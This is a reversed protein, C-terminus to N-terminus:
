MNAKISRNEDTFPAPEALVLGHLNFYMNEFFQWCSYNTFSVTTIASGAAVLTGGFWQILLEATM